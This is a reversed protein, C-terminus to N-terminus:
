AFAQCGIDAHSMKSFVRTMIFAAHFSLGRVVTGKPDVPLWVDPGDGQSQADLM